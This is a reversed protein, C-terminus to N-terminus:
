IVICRYYAFVPEVFHGHVSTAVFDPYDSGLEKERVVVYLVRADYEADSSDSALCEFVDVFGIVPVNM